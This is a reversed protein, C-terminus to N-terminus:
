EDPPPSKTRSLRFLESASPRKSSPPRTPLSAPQGSQAPPSDEHEKKPRLADPQTETPIPFPVVNLQPAAKEVHDYPRAAQQYAAEIARVGRTEKSPAKRQKRPLVGATDLMLKRQRATIRTGDKTKRRGDKRAKEKKAALRVHYTEIELAYAIGVDENGKRDRELRDFVGDPTRWYVFNIKSPHFVYDVRVNKGMLLRYLRLRDSNYRAGLAAIGDVTVEADGRELLQEYVDAEPLLRKQVGGMRNIGWSFVGDPSPRAGDRRMDFTLITEDRLARNYDILWQVVARELEMLTDCAFLKALRKQAKDAALNTRKYGGGTHSQADQMHGQGGEVLPKWYPTDPPSKFFDINLRDMASQGLKSAGPGGDVYIFSPVVNEHDPWADPEHIELWELREKKSTLACFIALRYGERWSENGVYIHWGMAKRSRRCFVVLVTAKGINFSEEDVKFTSVLEKNFPTADIDYVSAVDPALDTSHGRREQMEMADKHSARRADLANQKIILNANLEFQRFSLIHKERIQHYGEANAQFHFLECFKEYTEPLTMRLRVYFRDLALAINVLDAKRRARGRYKEGYVTEAASAPGPKSDYVRTFSGSTGKFSDLSLLANKDMGFWVYRHLLRKIVLRKVGMRTAHASVVTAHTKPSYARALVEPCHNRGLGDSVLDKILEYNEDRTKLWKRAAELEKGSSALLDEDTDSMFSPRIYDPEEVIKGDRALSLAKERSMTTALREVRDWKVAVQKWILEDRTVDLCILRMLIPWRGYHTYIRGPTFLIEAPPHVSDDEM